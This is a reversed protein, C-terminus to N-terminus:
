RPTATPASCPTPTPWAKGDKDATMVVRALNELNVQHVIGTGPPVVKFNDFAKQGWRLFGYREQNRQFEIKGNLDLADPKGFVDVQV